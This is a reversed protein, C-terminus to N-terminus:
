VELWVTEMRGWEAFIRRHLDLGRVRSHWMPLNDPFLWSTGSNPLQATFIDKRKRGELWTERAVNWALDADMELVAIGRASLAPVHWMELRDIYPLAADWYRPNREFLWREAPQHEVYRFAGTGPTMVERLDYDYEQLSHASYIVAEPSALVDLFKPRPAVLQFVATGADPAKFDEVFGLEVKLATPVAASLGVLRRFTALVDASSFPRGDHYTVGTRLSFTYTRGDDSMDVRKALDPVITRLGDVLNRRVLNNYMQGLVHAGGGQHIDLSNTSLDFVTRLTGGYVPTGKPRIMDTHVGNSIGTEQSHTAKSPGSGTTPGLGCAAFMGLSTVSGTTQLFQRRTLFRM